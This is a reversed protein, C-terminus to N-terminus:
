QVPHHEGCNPCSRSIFVTGTPISSINSHTAEIVGLHDSGGHGLRSTASLKLGRSDWQPFLADNVAAIAGMRAGPSALSAASIM